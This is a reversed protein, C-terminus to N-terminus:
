FLKDPKSMRITWGMMKGWGLSEEIDKYPGNNEIGHIGLLYNCYGSIGGVDDMVPLGDIAICVPAYEKKVREIEESKDVEEIIEIKVEWGDGYDYSYYLTNSLTLVEEISLRELLEDFSRDFAPEVQSLKAKKIEVYEIPANKNKMWESFSRAVKWEKNDEIFEYVWERAVEMKESEGGYYYPGTYKKKLWSKFSIGEKYDDDWFEDDSDDPFRFYVGCLEAWKMFKNETLKEFLDRDLKFCHLHSNQWGFAKQLAYHLAHLTMDSPVLVERIIGEKVKGYKRLVEIDVWKLNLELKLRMVKEVKKNMDIIRETKITHGVQKEGAIRMRRRYESARIAENTRNDKDYEGRSYPSLSDVAKVGVCLYDAIQKRNMGQERLKSIMESTKSSWLGETLLTRRVKIKDIGLEDATRQVSGTKIYKEIIEDYM